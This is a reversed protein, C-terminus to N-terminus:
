RGVKSKLLELLHRTPGPQLHRSRMEETLQNRTRTDLATTVAARIAAPNNAEVYIPLSGFMERSWPHDNLVMPSGALAAELSSFGPADDGLELYVSCSQMASRLIESAPQMYPLFRVDDGAAARCQDYYRKDAYGGVFVLPINIGKLAEITELQRKHEAIQGVWLIYRDLGYASQFLGEEAPKGFRPAIGPPVVAIKGNAIVFNKQCLDKEVNTRLIVLDALDLHRQVVDNAKHQQDFFNFNPILAIPKGAAKIDQLLGEGGGHASFHIVADYASLRRSNPGYLDARVGVDNIYEALQHLETEGGGPSLFAQHYTTLLLRM